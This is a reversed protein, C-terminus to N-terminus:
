RPKEEKLKTFQAERELKLRNIAESDAGSEKLADAEAEQRKKFEDLIRQQAKGRADREDELADSRRQREDELQEDRKRAAEDNQKDIRTQIDDLMRQRARQMRDQVLKEEFEINEWHRRWAQAEQELEREFNDRRERMARNDRLNQNLEDIADSAKQTAERTSEAWDENAEVMRQTFKLGIEEIKDAANRELEAFDTELKQIELAVDDFADALKNVGKAAKGAKDGMDDFAPATREAEERTGRAEDQLRDMGQILNDLNFGREGFKFSDGLQISAIIDKLRGVRAIIDGFRSGIQEVSANTREGFESFADGVESTMARIRSGARDVASTVAPAVAAAVGGAFARAANAATNFGHAIGSLVPIDADAAAALASGIGSMLRAIDGLITRSLVGTVISMANLNHAWGQVASASAPVLEAIGDAIAALAALIGQAAFAVARRLIAFGPIIADLVQPIYQGLTGIAEAWSGLIEIIGGVVDVIISAVAGFAKAITGLLDVIIERLINGAEVWAKFSDIIYAIYGIVATTVKGMVLIINAVAEGVAAWSEAIDDGPKIGTIAGGLEQLAPIIGQTVVNRITLMIDIVSRIAREMSSGAEVGARGWLEFAEGLGRGAIIDSIALSIATLARTMRQGDGIFGIAGRTAESLLPIFGEGFANAAIKVANTLIGFQAALPLLMRKAVDAATLKQTVDLFKDFEATTQQVLALVANAGRTTFIQNVARLREAETLKGSAVAADGFAEELNLLIDRAPRINGEADKVSIGYERMAKAGEKSPDLLAVLAQRLNTGATSGRLGAQALVGLMAATEDITLNMAAATSAIYSFGVAMDTFSATSRQAANTLADAVVVADTTELKFAAIGTAVAMAARALGLEGGSAISLNVVSELAGDLQTKLEVGGKALEFAADSVDGLSVGTALSIRVVEARLEHLQETTSSTVAGVKGINTQFDSAIKVGAIALSTVVSTIATLLGTLGFTAVGAATGLINLGRAGEEASGGMSGFGASAASSAAGGARLAGNLGLVASRMATTSSLFTGVGTIAASAGVVPLAM